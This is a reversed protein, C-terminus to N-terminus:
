AKKLAVKVWRVTNRKLSDKTPRSSYVASLSHKKALSILENLSVEYIARLPDPPAIRLTVALYGGEVLLSSLREISRNRYLPDIHMWVASVLIFEFKRDKITELDPLSDNIWDIRSHFNHSRAHSLMATSPDVATVNYGRRALSLADRGSGCGVDLTEAGRNNPLFKVFQRHINSFFLKSYNEIYKECNQDYAM